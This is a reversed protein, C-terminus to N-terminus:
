AYVTAVLIHLTSIQRTIAPENVPDSVNIRCEIAHMQPYYNKKGFHPHRGSSQGKILDHYYKQGEPSRISWV